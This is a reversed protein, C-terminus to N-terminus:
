KLNWQRLLGLVLDRLREDGWYLFLNVLLAAALLGGTRRTGWRNWADQVFAAAFLLFFPELPLRFRTSGYLVFSFALLSIAAFSSLLLFGEDRGYRWLGALFFPLILVLWFNYDPRLFYWFRLFREAALRLYTGPHSRIFSIGQRFWYRDRETESPIRHFFSEEIGWGHERRWAPEAANSRSLIFGGHTSIPVWADHVQYNRLSWPLITCCIALTVWFIRRFNQFGGRWLAALAFAPLFLLGVPRTLASLGIAVGGALLSSRRVRDAGIPDVLFWASLVVLFTFWTETMVEASIAVLPGYVVALLGALLAAQPRLRRALDYVLVVTCAGIIAQVLKVAQHSYGWAGYVLALFFPYFPPRWSRLEFGFWNDRAVFGEGRLLNLAIEDYDPTDQPPVEYGQLIYVLRAGLAAAFLIWPYPWTRTREILYATM